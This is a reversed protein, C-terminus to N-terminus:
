QVSIEWVNWVLGLSTPKVNKVRNRIAALADQTVLTILPLEESAIAQWQNYLQKRKAPDVTRAAESYIRDIEAEWPTAPTTQRPNWVHLSGSSSWINRGGHPDVGGTFGLLHAEWDFTSEMRTVLSNFEVPTFNVKMGVKKLDDQVINCLSTRVNNGTNTILNFELPHGAADELVGDGNRDAFGLAALMAKARAPDYPYKKVGPYYFAKNAESVPSWLPRGLDRLVTDVMSDRNIAYSVAQRFEKRSFWARKYAPLSRARPNQNFAIYTMGWNPGLNMAKYDGRAQDSQISAWDEPRPAVYDTERSKFKLIVTNLDPVIQTIAGGLLPYQQGQPGKRWYYPNRKFVIRQGAVYKDIVFPGTGVIEPGPTDIGWTSNFAGSKWAAELKHKPIIAFGVSDLFPGFPTPTRIEVTRDDVKRYKWPKGDVLLLDRVSTNVKPDYIVDLTFVVDEPTVPQGDSWKLGPRLHFTWTRGDPSHEYSEALAPEFELTELNRTVLGDFVLGLPATSSTEKAVIINFTKPEAFSADM